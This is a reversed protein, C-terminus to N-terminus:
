VPLVGCLRAPRLKFPLSHSQLCLVTVFPVTATCVDISCFPCSSTPVAAPQVLCM